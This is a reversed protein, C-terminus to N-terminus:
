DLVCKLCELMKMFKLLTVSWLCLLMQLLELSLKKMESQELCECDDNTITINKTSNPQLNVPDSSTSFVSFSEDDEVYEDNNITINVCDSSGVPSYAPFDAPYDSLAYFDEDDACCRFLNPKIYNHIPARKCCADGCATTVGVTINIALQGGNLVACVELQGVDERVVASDCELSM